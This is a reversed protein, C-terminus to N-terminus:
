PAPSCTAAEQDKQNASYFLSDRLSTMTQTM